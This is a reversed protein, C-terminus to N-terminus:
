VQPSTLRQSLRLEAGSTNAHRGSKFYCEALHLPLSLTQLKYLETLLPSHVPRGHNWERCPLFKEKKGM